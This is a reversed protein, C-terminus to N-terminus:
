RNEKGLSAVDGPRRSGHCDLTGHHSWSIQFKAQSRQGLLSWPKLTMYVIYVWTCICGMFRNTNRAFSPHWGGHNCTFINIWLVNQGNLHVMNKLFSCFGLVGKPLLLGMLKPLSRCSPIHFVYTIKAASSLILSANSSSWVKLKFPRKTKQITRHRTSSQYSLIGWCAPMHQSGQCPIISHSTHTSFIGPLGMEAAGAVLVLAAESM